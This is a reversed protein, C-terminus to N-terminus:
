QYNIQRSKGKMTRTDLRVTCEPLTGNRKTSHPFMDGVGWKCVRRPTFGRSVDFSQFVEFAATTSGFHLYIRCRCAKHRAEREWFCTVSPQKWFKSSLKFRAAMNTENQFWAFLDAWDPVIQSATPPQLPPFAGTLWKVCIYRSVCGTSSVSIIWQRCFPLFFACLSYTSIISLM